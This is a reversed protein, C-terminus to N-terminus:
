KGLVLSEGKGLYIEMAQYATLRKRKVLERALQEGDRPRKGAPLKGFWERLEELTMVGSSILRHTFQEITLPM